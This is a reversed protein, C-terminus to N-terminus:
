PWQGRDSYKSRGRQRWWYCPIGGPLLFMFLKGLRSNSSLFYQWDKTGMAGACHFGKYTQRTCTLLDIWSSCLNRSHVKLTLLICQDKGQSTLVCSRARWPILAKRLWRLACWLGQTWFKWYPCANPTVELWWSLAPPRLPCDLHAPLM